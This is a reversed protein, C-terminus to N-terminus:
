SPMRWNRRRRLLTIEPTGVSTDTGNDENGDHHNSSGDSGSSSNNNSSNNNSGGNDNSNHNSGSDGGSGSDSGSNGGGTNTKYTATVSVAGAPMTFTTTSSTADALTVSGGNVVWKDFQEGSAPANATITVTAGAEYGGGGTGNNVTVTYKEAPTPQTDLKPIVLDTRVIEYVTTSTRHRVVVIVTIKGEANTTAKVPNWTSITAEVDTIGAESLANDIAARVESKETDNTPNIKALANEVVTKAAALKDADSVSDKYAATVEVAGAPMTFTTTSSTADALNVSGSNVEWKDFQKGSAPADATITVTAGAEYEGGGTGNNVTVTYKDAATVVVDFSGSVSKTEGDYTVKYSCTFTITATGESVGTVDFGSYDRGGGDVAAVASDSSIFSYNENYFYSGGGYIGYHTEEGVTIHMTDPINWTYGDQTISSGAALVSVPVANSVMSVVLVAALLVALMRQLLSGKRRKM